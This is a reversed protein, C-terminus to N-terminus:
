TDLEDEIFTDFQKDLDPDLDSPNINEYSRPEYKVINKVNSFTSPLGDWTDGDHLKYKIRDEIKSYNIKIIKMGYQHYIIKNIFRLCEATKMHVVDSPVKGLSYNKFLAFKMESLMPKLENIKNDLTTYNIEIGTKNIDLGLYELIKLPYYHFAYKNKSTFDQYVNNYTHAVCQNHKLIKLKELTTQEKTQIITSLNRYWRMKEPVFYENLLDKMDEKETEEPINYNTKFNYKRIANIDGEDLYEDRRKILEKFTESDLDEADLIGEILNVREEEIREKRLRNMDKFYKEYSQRSINFSELKYEKGKLYAFLQATFNLQDLVSERSNRIFLDYIPEDKYPYIIKKKTIMKTKILNNHINYQTLFYNNCLMKETDTYTIYDEEKDFSKYKDIALVILKQKPQRVRHLMQAFEQAGLSKHCGYAYIKDFYDVVDFSVGMCVSPTYIIIDYKIWTNNIKMLKELKDSDDSEKHILLVKKSPYINNILTKLDKAKNNSAMPVVIKLNDKIDDMLSSVWSPYNTYKVKWNKYAKFDNVILKYNDNKGLNCANTYFNMCRESLDADLIYVNKAERLYMELANVIMTSRPNKIFHQSTIYRALSECEDVIILDYRDLELRLISDIQCIVRSEVIYKQKIDSYLKFNFKKLESLLKIGFTRRSSLFLISQFEKDKKTEFLADLLNKTKGTGKESQVCLLKKDLHPKFIDSSLYKQTIVEKKYKGTTIINSDYSEVISKIDHKPIINTLGEQQCYKILTGLGIKKRDDYSQFSKWKQLCLNPEYKSNTKSWNDWLKFYNTDMSHLIMGIKIWYNYDDVYKEPLSKLIFELKRENFIEHDVKKNEIYTEIKKESEEFFKDILLKCSKVNTVLTKQFFNLNAKKGPYISKINKFAIPKLMNKRKFKNCYCCRLVTLNYISSDCGKMDYKSKLYSFFSRCYKHTKFKINDFIVHYSNLKLDTPNSKLIIVNSMDYNPKFTRLEKIVNKCNKFVVKAPSSENNDLDIDLSFKIEQNETWFEYWNTDLNTIRSFLDEETLMTFKKSGENNRDKALLVINKTNSLKSYHLLADKKRIFEM